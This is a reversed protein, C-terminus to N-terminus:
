SGIQNCSLGNIEIDFLMGRFKNISSIYIMHRCDLFYDRELKLYKSGVEDFYLNDNSHM